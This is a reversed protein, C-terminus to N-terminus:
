NINPLNFDGCIVLSNPKYSSIIHEVSTTHSEVVSLPSRPPLYVGGVLLHGSNLSLLVFVQEVNSVTLSIPQFSRTNKIAILVGGGRTSTSNNHNRDLRIVQFGSFGLESDSIDPTLWTETLIIIDYFHFM